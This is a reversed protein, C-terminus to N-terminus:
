SAWWAAVFVPFLTGTHMSLLCKRRDIWLLNVYWDDESAPLEVPRPAQPAIAQATTDHM